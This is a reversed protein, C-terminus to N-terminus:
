DENNTKRRKYPGEYSGINFTDSYTGTPLERPITYSIINTSLLSNKRFTHPTNVRTKAAFTLM